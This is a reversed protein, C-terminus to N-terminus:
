FIIQVLIMVICAIGLGTKDGLCWGATLAMATVILGTINIRKM